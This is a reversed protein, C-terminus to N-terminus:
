YSSLYLQPHLFPLSSPVSICVSFYKSIMFSLPLFLTFRCFHCSLCTVYVFHNSVHEQDEIVEQAHAHAINSIKDVDCEGNNMVCNGQLMLAIAVTVAVCSAVCRPDAHTVMCASKTNAIVKKLDHFEMTGLISTRM